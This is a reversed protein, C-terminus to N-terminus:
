SEVFRSPEIVTRTIIRLFIKGNPLINSFYKQLFIEEGFRVRVPGSIWFHCPAVTQFYIREPTPFTLAKISKLLECSEM